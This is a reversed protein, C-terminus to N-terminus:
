WCARGEELVQLITNLGGKKTKLPMRIARILKGTDAYKSVVLEDQPSSAIFIEGAANVVSGCYNVPPM